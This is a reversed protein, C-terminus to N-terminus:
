YCNRIRTAKEIVDSNTECLISFEKAKYHFYEAMKITDETVLHPNGGDSSIIVSHVCLECALKFFEDIEASNDNIGPLLIYKLIIANKSEKSYRHLTDCVRNFVDVGKIKAFTERKGSDMSVYIEGRSSSLIDSIYKDYILANTFILNYKFFRIANYIDNRNPHITIEGTSIQSITNQNIRGKAQMIDVLKHFEIKESVSTANKAISNCYNCRFNCIGGNSNNLFGIQEYISTQISFYEEQLNKCHSCANLVNENLESFIQERLSFFNNTVENYDGTFSVSLPKNRGFDACCFTLSDGSIVCVENLFRCSIKKTVPVYNIIQEKLINKNETLGYIIEYLYRKSAIFLKFDGFRKKAEDISIVIIGDIETGHLSENGDCICLPSVGRKTLDGILERGFQGAGYIILGIGPNKLLANMIQVINEGYNTM